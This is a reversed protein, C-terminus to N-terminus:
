RSKGVKCHQEKIQNFEAMKMAPVAMDYSKIVRIFRLIYQCQNSPPLWEAIDKAGKQRNLHDEVVILNMPDNAFRIRKDRDWDRAGYDWSWRLPVVHDIDIDSAKYIRKGTFYSVWQGHTVRCERNDSYTLVGVNHAVLMEARTNRCNGSEDIWGSGFYRRQYREGSSQQNTAQRSTAPKRGGADICAEMTSFATFTQTRQYHPSSEGHCIGSQSMKIVAAEAFSAYSIMLAVFITLIRM